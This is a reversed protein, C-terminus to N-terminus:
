VTCFTRFIAAITIMTTSKTTDINMMEFVMLSAMYERLWSIAIM